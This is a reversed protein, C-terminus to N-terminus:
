VHQMWLNTEECIGRDEERNISVLDLADPVVYQGTESFAMRTWDERESVTGTIVMSGPLLRSSRRESASIPAFGPTSTPATPAPGCPRPVSAIVRLIAEGISVEQGGWSREVWPGTGTRALDTRARTGSLAGASEESPEVSTGRVTPLPYERRRVSASPPNPNRIHTSASEGSGEAVEQSLEFLQTGAVDQIHVLDPLEQYFQGGVLLIETRQDCFHGRLRGPTCPQDLGLLTGAQYQEVPWLPHHGIGVGVMAPHRDGRDASNLGMLPPVRNTMFATAGFQAQDIVTGHAATVDRRQSRGAVDVVVAM